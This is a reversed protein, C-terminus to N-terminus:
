AILNYEAPTTKVSGGRYLTSLSNNIRMLPRCRSLQRGRWGCGGRTHRVLRLLLSLLRRGVAWVRLGDMGSVGGVASVGESGDVFPVKGDADMMEHRGILRLTKASEWAYALAALIIGTGVALAMDILLVMVTVFVIIFVEIRKIKQHGQAYYRERWQM